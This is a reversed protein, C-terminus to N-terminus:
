AHSNTMSYKFVISGTRALLHTGSHIYRPNQGSNERQQPYTLEFSYAVRNFSYLLISYVYLIQSFTLCLLLLVRRITIEKRSSSSKKTTISMHRSHRIYYIPNVCMFSLKFITNIYKKIAKANMM